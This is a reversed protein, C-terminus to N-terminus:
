PAVQFQDIYDAASERAQDESIEPANRDQQPMVDFVTPAFGRRAIEEEIEQNFKQASAELETIADAWDSRFFRYSLLKIRAPAYPNFSCLDWFEFSPFCALGTLCQWKYKDVMLQPKQAYGDHEGDTPCKLEVGGATILGDPSCGLWDWLPHLAFGIQEVKQQIEAEYLMRAFPERTLGDEMARTVYNDATHKYLREVVLKYRYDAKDQAESGAEFRVGQRSSARTTPVAMVAGFKSGTIRGRHAAFWLDGQQECYFIRSM